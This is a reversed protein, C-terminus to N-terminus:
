PGIKHGLPLLVWCKIQHLIKYSLHGEWSFYGGKVEGSDMVGIYASNLYHAPQNCTDLPTHAAKEIVPSLAIIGDATQFMIPQDWKILKKHHSLIAEATSRYM